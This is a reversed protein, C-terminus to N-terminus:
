KKPPPPTGGQPPTGNGGQPAPPAGHNEDQPMSGMMADEPHPNGRHCTVCTVTRITDPQASKNFNFYNTNIEKTMTLMYRAVNKEPKDDSAFDPWKVTTDKNPAHCFNCKVGLAHNFGEMVAKLQERSIDPPLVKLNKYGDQPPTAEPTHAAVGVMVIGALAVVVTLKKKQFHLM